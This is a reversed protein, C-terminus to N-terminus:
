NDDIDIGEALCAEFALLLNQNNLADITITNNSVSASAFDLNGICTELDLVISLHVIGEAEVTVGGGAIPLQVTQDFESILTFPILTNSADPYEGTIYISYDGAEPDTTVYFSFNVQKFTGPFVDVEGILANGEVVELVFPGPLYIDELETDEGSDNQEGVNNDNDDDADDDAGDDADDDADDDDVDGENQNNEGSNEEITIDAVSITASNITIEDEDGMAFTSKLADGPQTTISLSLTSVKELKRANKSCGNLAMIMPLIVASLFMWKFLTKM